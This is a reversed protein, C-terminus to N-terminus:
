EVAGLKVSLRKTDQIRRLILPVEQGAYRQSVKQLEQASSLVEGALNLLIDGVMVGAQAAPSGTIVALVTLGPEPSEENRQMVHVGLAPPMLKSWYSAFYSYLGGNGTNGTSATQEVASPVNIAAMPASIPKEYVVVAGAAVKAAQTVARSPPVNRAEFSSYGLMVYGDNLMRQYDEVEKRGQYIVPEAPGPGLKVGHLQRAVYSLAYPNDEKPVQVQPESVVPREPVPEQKVAPKSCAALLVLLLMIFYPRM